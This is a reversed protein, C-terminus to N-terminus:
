FEVEGDTCCILITNSLFAYSGVKVKRWDTTTGNYNVQTLSGCYAFAWGGISTVSIPLTIRTLASCSAFASDNVSTVGEPISYTSATKGAPYCVLKTKSKNFLVGNVDCYSSNSDDVTINTIGTQVFAGEGISTVSSPIFISKLSTISFAGDGISTVGESLTVNELGCCTNFANDGISTVSGPIAISTIFFNQFAYNGISTAGEQIIVREIKQIQEFSYRKQIQEFSYRSVVAEIAGVGSIILEKGDASLEYAIPKNKIAVTVAFTTSKGEYSVTITQTGSSSLTTPTCSFGSTVTNTTGNNYTEM